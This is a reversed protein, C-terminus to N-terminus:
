LFDLILSLLKTCQNASSLHPSPLTVFIYPFMFVDSAIFTMKLLFLLHPIGMKMFSELWRKELGVMFLGSIRLCIFYM